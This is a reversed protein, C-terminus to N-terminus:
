SRKLHCRREVTECIKRHLSEVGISGALTVVGRSRVRALSLYGRRVREWFARPERELRDRDRFGSRALALRVPLDLLLTLHPDLGGTAIHNLAEVVELSLGRGYGQYALSALAYRECIVWRGQALAPRLIERTHQVRSAEYLFLEALPQVKQTPSLLIKRVAEALYTGGPERTHIAAVRHRFRLFNVLLRAQTSKGCGDPGELVIFFGKRRPM